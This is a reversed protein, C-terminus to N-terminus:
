QFGTVAEDAKRARRDAAPQAEQGIPKPAKM